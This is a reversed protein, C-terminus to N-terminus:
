SWKFGCKPCTHLLTTGGGEDLSTFREPPRNKEQLKALFSDDYGTGHLGGNKARDELLAQLARDDYSGLEAIRNDGLLIDEAASDGIDVVIVPIEKLGKAIAAEYRHNGAIIYGTSKQVVCAGYFDNKEISDGIAGVNGKKPNKPHRKLADVARIEYEQKAIKAIKAIKAQQQAAVEEPTAKRKSYHEQQADGPDTVVKLSRSRKKKAAM